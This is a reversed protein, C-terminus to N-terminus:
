DDWFYDDDDDEEHAASSTHSTDGAGVAPGDDRVRRLTKVKKKEHGEEREEYEIGAERLAPALRNMIRSLSNPAKPWTKTRQVEDSVLASLDRLLDESTGSWEGNLMRKLLKTVAGAVPDSELLAQTARRRNDAYAEMFAGRDWGLADEAATAWTAFDAMRPLEDLRVGEIERLAGSVADLLAGFIKARAAEFEAWFRKEGRRENEPIPLLTVLISREQLDGRQAVMNIGNVIQPRVADFLTEEDDTYLTRTGLGGGTSLRCMADSIGAKIYSVNDFALVRTGSAAIALDRENGSLGRLPMVKPDTLSVLLRVTTSKASGQQGNVELIPYPGDPNFAGILWSVMLKFDDETWVNLFPRLDDVCGGREPYPLPASNKRRVFKVPPDAVVRWAAPTVEVAEWRGNCLDVYVAGDHKAIRMFVPEGQGEFAARAAITEGANQLAQGSPATGREGFFRQRLWREFRKGEVPWTEKHGGVEFTAYTEEDPTHFLEADEAYRVLVDVESGSSGAGEESAAAVEEHRITALADLAEKIGGEDMGCRGAASEAFKRRARDDSLNLRDLYPELEPYAAYLAGKFPSGDPTFEFRFDGVEYLKPGSM